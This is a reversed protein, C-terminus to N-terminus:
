RLLYPAMWIGRPSNPISPTYPLIGRKDVLPVPLTPSSDVHVCMERFRGNEGIFDDNWRDKKLLAHFVLFIERSKTQM